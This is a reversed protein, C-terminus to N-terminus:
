VCIHHSHGIRLHYQATEPCVTSATNIGAKKINCIDPVALKHKTLVASLNDLIKNVNTKISPQLGHSASLKLAEHPFPLSSFFATFRDAKAMRNETWTETTPM